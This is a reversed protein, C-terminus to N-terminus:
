TRGAHALRAAGQAAHYDGDGTALTWNPRAISTLQRDVNAWLQAVLHGLRVGIGGALLVHHPRYIAHAIRLARVLARLPPDDATIRSVWAAPDPGYRNALAAASLYGELSGAGGDPGVVPHGQISVDVQGFHGPSDEDVRLQAGDDLVAAGVGTGIALLFLRGRLRRGSYLDYATAHADTTVVVSAPRGGLAAVVLEDLRCGNLGPVNVSQAVTQGDEHMIGPVCVGVACHGLAAGAPVQGAAAERVAAALQEASPRSYTPSRGAWRTAGARDIAAVKVATGGVDIGIALEDM